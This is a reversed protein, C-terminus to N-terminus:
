FLKHIGLSNIKALEIDINNFKSYGFRPAEMYEQERQACIKPSDPSEISEFNIERKGLAQKISDFM